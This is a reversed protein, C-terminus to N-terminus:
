FIFSLIIYIDELCRMGMANSNQLFFGSAHADKEVHLLFPHAGHRKEVSTSWLSQYTFEM